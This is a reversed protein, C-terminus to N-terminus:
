NILKGVEEDESPYIWWFGCEKTVVEEGDLTQDFCRLNNDAWQFFTYVYVIKLMLCVQM